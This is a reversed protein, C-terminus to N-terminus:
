LSLNRQIEVFARSPNNHISGYLYLLKIMRDYPELGFPVSCTNLLREVLIRDKVSDMYYLQLIKEKMWGVAARTIPGSVYDANLDKKYILALGQV